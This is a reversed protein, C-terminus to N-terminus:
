EPNKKPPQRGIVYLCNGCQLGERVIFLDNASCSRATGVHKRHLEHDTAAGVGRVERVVQDVIPARATPATYLQGAPREGLELRALFQAWLQSAGKFRLQRVRTCLYDVRDM